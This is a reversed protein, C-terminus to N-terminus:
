LAAFAAHFEAALNATNAGYRASFHFPIARKAGAERAIEGAARATLHCTAAAVPRDAEFFAAEIFLQDAASALGIIRTRNPGTDAADTVYAIHQGKGTRFARTRLAGLTVTGAGPVAIVTHDPLNDRIAQKAANIWPGVPLGLESLGNRWVNVRDRELFAFALSPIGHDLTAARIEFAPESLVRGPAMDPPPLERRAFRERARFEAVEAIRDSDFSQVTLRFDVATEDLLNWTFSTLRSQMQKVFGPPGLMLLPRPRHLRLRLLRDVGAIHDMHTHSIFVHSVRLLERPSLPATDGLDFLMARRGFRFDLYLGPDGTPDNILRPQVPLSM